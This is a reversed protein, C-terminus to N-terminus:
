SWVRWLLWVFLVWLAACGLVMTLVAMGGRSAKREQEAVWREGEAQAERMCTMVHEGIGQAIKGHPNSMAADQAYGPQMAWVMNWYNRFRRRDQATGRPLLRDLQVNMPDTPHLTQQPIPQKNM